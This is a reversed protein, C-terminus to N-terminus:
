GCIIQTPEYGLSRLIDGGFPRKYPWILEGSGSINYHNCFEWFEPIKRELKALFNDIAPSIESDAELEEWSSPTPFDILSRAGKRAMILAIHNVLNYNTNSMLIDAARGLAEEMVGATLEFKNVM